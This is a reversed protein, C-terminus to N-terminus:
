EEVEPEEAEAPEAGEAEAAQEAEIQEMTTPMLVVAVVADGDTKMTVGDPVALDAVKISGGVGLESVDVAFETPLDSPLAEVELQHLPQDLVGGEKVGPSEGELRVAVTAVLLETMSIELLDIHIVRDRVPDLQYDKLVAHIDGKRGAISLKVVAHRGADGSLADRLSPRDVQFPVPENGRGYLIGPIKGAARVAKASKTKGPARPELVLTEPM